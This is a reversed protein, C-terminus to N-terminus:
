THSGFGEITEAFQAELQKLTAQVADEQSPLVSVLAHALGDNVRQLHSLDSAIMKGDKHGSKGSLVMQKM